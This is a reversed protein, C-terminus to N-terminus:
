SSLGAILYARYVAVPSDLEFEILNNPRVEVLKAPPSFGGAFFTDGDPVGEASGLAQWFSGLNANV